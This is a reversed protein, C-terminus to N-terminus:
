SRAGEAVRLNDRGLILMETEGGSFDHRGGEAIQRIVASPDRVIQGALYRVGHEFLLPAMPTSPGTLIVCANRSLQLLRPLTKNILTTATVFVYEQSPLVFECASDPLDGPQQCRELISLECIAALPELSRFHGIVAVRRGRLESEMAQFVNTGHVDPPAVFNRAIEVPANVCSNIAALGLAADISSWSKIREALRRLPMGAIKGADSAAEGYDRTPTMSVGMGLSRVLTWSLGVLCDGVLLDHPVCEILEDYIRWM